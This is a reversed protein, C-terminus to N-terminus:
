LTILGERIAYRVLDAENHTKLKRHIHRKHFEVTNASIGLLAGIQAATFGECVFRVIEIERPSLNDPDTDAVHISYVTHGSPNM